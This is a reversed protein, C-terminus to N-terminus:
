EPYFMWVENVNNSLSSETVMGFGSVFMLVPIFWDGTKNEKEFFAIWGINPNYLIHM